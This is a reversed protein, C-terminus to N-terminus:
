LTGVIYGLHPSVMRLSRIYFTPRLYARHSYFSGVGMFRQIQCCNGSTRAVCGWMDYNYCRYWISGDDGNKKYGGIPLITALYMM